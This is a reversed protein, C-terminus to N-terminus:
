HRLIVAPEGGYLQEFVVREHEDGDACRSHQLSRVLWRSQRGRPQWCHARLRNRKYPRLRRMQGLRYRQWQRSAPKSPLRLPKNHQTRQQKPRQRVCVSGSLPRRRPQWGTHPIGTCMRPPIHHEALTSTTQCMAPRQVPFLCASRLCQARLYIRHHAFATPSRQVWSVSMAVCCTHMDRLAGHLM